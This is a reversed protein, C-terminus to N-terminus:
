RDKNKQKAFASLAGAILLKGGEMDWAIARVARATGREGVKVARVRGASVTSCRMVAGNGWEGAAGSGAVLSARM